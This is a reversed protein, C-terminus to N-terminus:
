RSSTGAATPRSCSSRRAPASTASPTPSGCRPPASSGRLERGVGPAPAEEIVKQHRRQVSCDREGLHLGAGHADRLIQVEVHRAGEVYREYLLGRDGFAAAAERAAAEVAAALESAQRVVRM